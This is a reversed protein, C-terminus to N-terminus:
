NCLFYLNDDLMHVNKDVLIGVTWKTIATKTYNKWKLM